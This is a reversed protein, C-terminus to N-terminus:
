ENRFLVYKTYNPINYVLLYCKGDDDVILITTEGNLVRVRSDGANNLSLTFTENNELNLDDTLQVRVTQRLIGSTLDKTSDLLVYDAPTTASGDTATVSFKRFCYNLILIM